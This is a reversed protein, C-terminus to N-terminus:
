DSKLIDLNRKEMFSRFAEKTETSNLRSVFFRTEEKIRSKLLDTRSGKMLAKTMCVATAPQAALRKAAGLAIQLTTDDACVRNVFGFEYARESGFVEGLLFLESAKQYGILEPLLLTSGAEPVLGLNVFPMQFQANEGAFVLDCHLLMTMGVGIAVGNVAAVIPKKVFPLTDVFKLMPSEADVEPQNLFDALDNGSCFCETNGTLLLAFVHDDNDARSLAQTLATYMERSLANRKDPRDIQIRMVGNSVKVNLYKSV